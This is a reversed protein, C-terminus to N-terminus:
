APVRPRTGERVAQRLFVGLVVTATLLLVLFSLWGRALLSMEVVGEAYVLYPVALLTAVRRGLSTRFGCGM